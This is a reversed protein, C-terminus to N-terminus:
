APRIPVGIAASLLSTVGHWARRRSATRTVARQRTMGLLPAPSLVPDSPIRGARIICIPVPICTEPEFHHNESSGDKMIPRTSDSHRSLLRPMGSEQQEKVEDRDQQGALSTHM